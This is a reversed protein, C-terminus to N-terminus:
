PERRTQEIAELLKRRTIPKAVFASVGLDRIRRRVEPLNRSTLVIIAPAPEEARLSAILAFGSLGPMELDTIVLQYRQRQAMELARSGDDAVDVIWGERALMSTMAERISPSDDVVLARRGRTLPGPEGSSAALGPGGSFAGFGAAHGAPAPQARAVLQAPDLILQVKGSGSITAGAYLTLPALLAGLPKIVIERRGVIKEVTAAAYHGAFEVLLAPRKDRSPPEDGTARRRFGVDGLLQELPLVPIAQDGILVATAGPDVALTARVSLQPVAYVQGAVKFLTAEAVATSLPVRVSFMTGAGIQSTVTVEGGLRAISERVLDLGIGRGALEDADDRISVGISLLNALVEDHSAAAARAATWRGTAVYRDRLKKTDVGAGDDAVELVLAAGEHRTRVHVTLAAPKGAALRLDAPEAGHVIANRVLQVVPDVLREAVTKDFETTEGTTRLDVPIGTARRLARATRAAHLFLVRASEMRIRNLGRQVEGISRRLGEIEDLMAASTQSLVASYNALEIEIDAARDLSQDPEGSLADHLEQRLRAIERACTRLMQARREIRTRDFLLEGASSMLADIREPEVRVTSPMAALEAGSSEDPDGIPLPIGPLSGLARPAGALQALDALAGGLPPGFPSDFAPQGASATRRVEASAGALQALDALVREAIGLQAPEAAHLLQRLGDAIEVILDNATAPWAASQTLETLETELRHVLDVFRTLGVTGGSGKLAHTRRLLDGLEPQTPRSIGAGLACVIIADLAQEAEGRFVQRLVELEDDEFDLTDGPGGPGPPSTV